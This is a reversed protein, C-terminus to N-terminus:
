MEHLDGSGMISSHVKAGGTYYVDGSGVISVDLNGSTNVKCNGSGAISIDCDGAVLDKLNVDGSGAISVGVKGASGAMLVDGSGAVSIDLSKAEGELKLDGSGAISLALNEMGTFAGKTTVDGSGAVSVAKLDPITIYITIKEHKIVNEEIGINWTGNRVKTKINDIINAEADIEVKQPSGQKLIVDADLSLGISHFPDLTIEKTVANGEGKISHSHSLFKPPNNFAFFLGVGLVILVVKLNKM